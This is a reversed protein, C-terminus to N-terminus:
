KTATGKQNPEVDISAGNALREAMQEPGALLVDFVTRQRNMGFRGLHPEDM